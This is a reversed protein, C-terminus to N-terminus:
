DGAVAIRAPDVALQAASEFVWRLAAYCDHPGAPFPHEPALRYEVSVVVADVHEVLHECAYDALEISGLTFGGGHVYLIAPLVGGRRSPEYVRVRVSDSDDSLGAVIVDAHRVSPSSPAGGSLLPGLQEALLRRTKPWDASPDEFGGGSLREFVGTGFAGAAALLVVSAVLVFRRRRVTFQGLRTFM